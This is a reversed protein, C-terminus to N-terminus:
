ALPSGSSPGPKVGQPRDQIEFHGTKLNTARDKLEARHTTTFATSWVFSFQSFFWATACSITRALTSATKSDAQLNMKMFDSGPHISSIQV